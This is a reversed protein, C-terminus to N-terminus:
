VTIDKEAKEGAPNKTEVTMNIVHQAEELGGEIDDEIEM